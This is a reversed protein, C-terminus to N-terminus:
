WTMIGEILPVVEGGVRVMTIADPVGDVEIALRSPRGMEIGQEATMYTTPPTAPMIGNQVLYAGLGGSASGTAPDEPVGLGPAFMRTHVDVDPGITETTLVMACRGCLTEPDLAAFQRSLRGADIQTTKMAAVEERSRVPVFLQRVGTSVVQVPWGTDTVAEAPLSLAAAIEAIQEPNATAAFEPAMHDMVVHTVRGDRVHLAAARVGVNLQFRVTTVPEHLEVRGLHALTWHTGVVPHGAFPMEYEPTFIRVRFDAAPNDPPLVFTTESLNMELAIRQMQATDLGAADPFVALPNGGFARDTFVDVQFFRYEPM